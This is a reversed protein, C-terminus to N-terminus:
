GKHLQFIGSVFHASTVHSYNHQTKIHNDASADPQLVNSAHKKKMTTLRDLEQYVCM